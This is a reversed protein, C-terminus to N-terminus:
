RLLLGHQLSEANCKRVHGKPLSLRETGIVETFM